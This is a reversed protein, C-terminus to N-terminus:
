VCTMISVLPTRVVTTHRLTIKYGWCHPPRTGRVVKSGHFVFWRHLILRSTERIFPCTRELTSCFRGTNSKECRFISFFTQNVKTSSIIHYLLLISSTMQVSRTLFSSTNCLTLSPLFIRLPKPPRSTAHQGKTGLKAPEFGASATPNKLAFFFDEARRGESPFYLRKDWTM